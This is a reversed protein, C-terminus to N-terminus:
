ARRNARNALTIEFAAYIPPHFPSVWTVCTDLLDIRVRSNLWQSLISFISLCLATFSIANSVIFDLLDIM